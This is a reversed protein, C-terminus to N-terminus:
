YQGGLGEPFSRTNMEHTITVCSYAVLLTPVVVDHLLLLEAVKVLQLQEKLLGGGAEDDHGFM